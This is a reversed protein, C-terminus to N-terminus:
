YTPVGNGPLGEWNQCCWSWSAAFTFLGRQLQSFLQLHRQSGIQPLILVLHLILPRKAEDLGTNHNPLLPSILLKAISVGCVLLKEVLARYNKCSLCSSSIGLWIWAADIWNIYYKMNYSLLNIAEKSVHRHAILSLLVSGHNHSM